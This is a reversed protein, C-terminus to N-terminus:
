DEGWYKLFPHIEFVTQDVDRAEGVVKTTQGDRGVFKVASYRFPMDSSTSKKWRLFTRVTNPPLDDLLLTNVTRRISHFGVQDTHKLGILYELRYWLSFLGFNSVQTDFDYSQLWPVIEEPIVHTRERGHKATAIHITRDKLRVDKQELGIMEVKRTAYTTSIALFAQLDLANNKKVARIMEIIIEPDLAPADVGDERILPAEGRAFPWEIGNEKLLAENRKFITRIIRFVFNRSGDSFKHGTKKDHLRDIYKFITERDLNGQAYDIFDAAYRLYLKRVHGKSGLRKEYSDFLEANFRVINKTPIM